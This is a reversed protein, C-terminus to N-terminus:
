GVFEMGAKSVHLLQVTQKINELLTAKAHYQPDPPCIVDLIFFNQSPCALFWRPVNDFLSSSAKCFM